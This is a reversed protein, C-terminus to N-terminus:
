LRLTPFTGFEIDPTERKWDTSLGREPQLVFTEGGNRATVPFMLPSICLGDTKKKRTGTCAYDLCRMKFPFFDRLQSMLMKPVLTDYARARAVTSIGIFHSQRIANNSKFSSYNGEADSMACNSVIMKEEGPQGIERPSISFKRANRPMAICRHM